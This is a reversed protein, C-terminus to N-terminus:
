TCTSTILAGPGAGEEVGMGAGAGVGDGVGTDAGAETVTGLGTGARMALSDAVAHM